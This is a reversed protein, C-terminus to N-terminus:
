CFKKNNKALCETGAPKVKGFNQKLNWPLGRTSNAYQEETESFINDDVAVCLECVLKQQESIETKEKEDTESRKSLQLTDGRVSKTESSTYMQIVTTALSPPTVFLTSAEVSIMDLSEISSQMQIQQSQNYGITQDSGVKDASADKSCKIEKTDKSSKIGM